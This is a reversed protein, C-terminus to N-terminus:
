PRWFQDDVRKKREVVCVCASARPLRRHHGSAEAGPVRTIQWEREGKETEVERSAVCDEAEDQDAQHDSEQQQTTADAEAAAAVSPVALGTRELM